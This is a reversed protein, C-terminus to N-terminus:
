GSARTWCSISCRQCQSPRRDLAGAALLETRADKWAASSSPTPLCSGSGTASTPVRPSCTVCGRGATRSSCGVVSSTSRSRPSCSTRRRARRASRHTRRRQGDGARDDQLLVRRELHSRDARDVLPSSSGGDTGYPAAGLRELQGDVWAEVAETGVPHKGRHHSASRRNRSANPPHYGRITGRSSERRHDGRLANPVEADDRMDIVALRGERIAQQLRGVRDIRALHGALHEVGHVELALLPDGDLGPGHPQVVLSPVALDVREVQDVRGPVDVEAVLHAARQLGALARDQHDVGALADLGLRQGVGVQGERLVQHDDRDDVLDVQGARIGLHDSPSSSSVSAMGRSSAIRAEALSPMPTSSIRSAITFRTGGGPPSRM